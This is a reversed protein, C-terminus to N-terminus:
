LILNVILYYIGEGLFVNSRLKKFSSNVSLNRFQYVRFLNFSWTGLLLTSIKRNGVLLFPLISFIFVLPMYKIILITTGSGMKIATTIRGTKKDADFHCMQHILEYLGFNFVLIITLMLAELSFYSFFLITQTYFLPFFVSNICVDFFPKDRLRLPPASYITALFILFLSFLAFLISQLLFIFVLLPALPLICLAFVMRRSVKKKNVLFTIFNKENALLSDYYNNISFAYSFLLGGYALILIHSITLGKFSVTAFALLFIGLNKIWDKIRYFEILFNLLNFEM